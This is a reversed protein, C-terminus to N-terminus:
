ILGYIKFRFQGEALGGVFLELPVTEKGWDVTCYAHVM